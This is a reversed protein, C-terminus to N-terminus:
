DVPTKQLVPRQGAAALLSGKRRADAGPPPLNDTEDLKDFGKAPLDAAM